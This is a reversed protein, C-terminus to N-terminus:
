VMEDAEDLEMEVQRLTASRQEANFVSLAHLHRIHLCYLEGGQEEKADGELKDRIIEIFQRFDQEYSDFLATPSTDM